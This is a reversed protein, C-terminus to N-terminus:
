PTGTYSWHHWQRCTRRHNLRSRPELRRAICPECLNGAIQHAIRVIFRDRDVSFESRCAHLCMPGSTVVTDRCKYIAQGSYSPVVGVITVLHNDQISHITPPSPEEDCLKGLMAYCLIRCVSVDLVPRDTPAQPFSVGNENRRAYVLTRRPPVSINANSRTHYAAIVSNHADLPIQESLVNSRKRNGKARM